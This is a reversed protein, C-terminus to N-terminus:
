GRKKGPIVLQTGDDAITVRPADGSIHMGNISRVALLWRGGWRLQVEARVFNVLESCQPVPGAEGHPQRMETVAMLRLCTEKSVTMTSEGPLKVGVREALVAPVYWLGAFGVFLAAVVVSAVSWFVVPRINRVVAATNAVLLLLLVTLGCLLRWDAWSDPKSEAIGSAWVLIFVGMPILSGGLTLAAVTLFLTGISPHPRDRWLMLFMVVLAIAGALGVYHAYPVTKTMWWIFLWAGGIQGSLTAWWGRPRVEYSMAAFVTGFMPITVFVWLLLLWVSVLTALGFLGLLDSPVYEIRMLYLYILVCGVIFSAVTALKFPFQSVREHFRRARDIFAREPFGHSEGALPTIRKASLAPLHSAM